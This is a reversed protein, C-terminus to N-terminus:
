WSADFVVWITKHSTKATKMAADLLSQAPQPSTDQGFSPAACALLMLFLLSLARRM